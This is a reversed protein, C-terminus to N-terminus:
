NLQKVGKIAEFKARNSPDVLFKDLEERMSAENLEFICDFQEWFQEHAPKATTQTDIEITDFGLTDMVRM